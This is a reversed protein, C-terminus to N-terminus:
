LTTQLPPLEVVKPPEPNIHKHCLRCQVPNSGTWHAPWGGATCGDGDIWEQGNSWSWDIEGGDYMGVDCDTCDCSFRAYDLESVLDELHGDFLYSRTWGSRIDCGGHVQLACVPDGKDTTLGAVGIDVDCGHGANYTDYWSYEAENAFLDDRSEVFAELTESYLDDPREKDFAVYAADLRPNYTLANNICHITSIGPELDAGGCRDANLWEKPTAFLSGYRRATQRNREYARGYFDGSDCLHHGTPTTFITELMKETETQMDGFFIM